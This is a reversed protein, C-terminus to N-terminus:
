PPLKLLGMKSPTYGATRVNISPPASKPVAPADQSEDSPGSPKLHENFFDLMAAATTLVAERGRYSHGEHPLLLIDADGGTRRIARYFEISQLAPTGANQDQLGHVLLLPAHLSNSYLFPSMALYTDPAQWLTRTETQFGFPTLTRNYAGSLAVGARFLDSHVLLNAVMFAGYSHGAVGIRNRDVYGTATAADIAVKANEIIQQVFTDNANGGSGVIPMSVDDLVAYGELVFYLKFASEFDPFRDGTELTMSRTDSGYERPYAWIITPLPGRKEYDAPLYLNASLEYGDPRRYRLRIRRANLLGQSPPQYDTLRKSFIEGRGGRVFYNPPERSTEHRILVRSGDRTLLSLAAENARGDSQWVRKVALTDLKMYDVYAQIGGSVPAEGRLYIGGNYVEVVRKGWRNGVRLPEGFTQIAADVSTEAILRPQMAPSNLSVDWYRKTHRETDYEGILAGQGDELWDLESYRNATHFIERAPASGFPLAQLMVKDDGGAREVWAVSAPLSADWQIARRDDNSQRSALVRLLRGSQDWLEVSRYTKSLGEMDPYPPLIRRVLLFEGNPSPEVSEMAAPQGVPSMEGTRADVLMLQAELLDRVVQRDLPPAQWSADFLTPQSLQAARDAALTQVIHANPNVVTRCLLHDGDPMWTCPASLAGNLVRGVLRHVQHSATDGIWLEIGDDYAVTFAFQSGDPSWIPYGLTSNQPVGLDTQEGSSLNLLTLGYYALPAHPGYNRPNIKVGAVVVMPEALSKEPLLDQRHVLLAYRHQPGEALMPLPQAELLQAVEAPPARMAALAAGSGLWAAAAAM